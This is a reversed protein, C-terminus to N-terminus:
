SKKEFRRSLDIIKKRRTYSAAAATDSRGNECIRGEGLVSKAM